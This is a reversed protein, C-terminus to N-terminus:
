AASIAAWDEVLSVAIPEDRNTQGEGMPYILAQVKNECFDLAVISAIKGTTPHMIELVPGYAAPVLKVDLSAGSNDDTVTYTETLQSLQSLKIPQNSIM